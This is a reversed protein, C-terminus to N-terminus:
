HGAIMGERYRLTVRRAHADSQKLRHLVDENQPVVKEAGSPDSVGTDPDLAARLSDQLAMEAPLIQEDFHLGADTCARKADSLYDVYVQKWVKAPIRQVVM